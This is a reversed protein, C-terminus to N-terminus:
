RINAPAMNCVSIMGSRVDVVRKAEEASLFGEIYVVLPERSLIHVGKYAHEGCKLDADPVVLSDIKEQTVSQASIDIGSSGSSSDSIISSLPAGALVYIVVAFFAYQVLSSFSIPHM